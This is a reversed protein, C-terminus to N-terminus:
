RQPMGCVSLDARRALVGHCQRSPARLSARGRSGGDQWGCQVMRLAPPAKSAAPTAKEMERVGYWADYSAASM